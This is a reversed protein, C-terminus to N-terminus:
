DRVIFENVDLPVAGLRLWLTPYPGHKTEEFLPGSRFLVRQNKADPFMTKIVKLSEVCQADVMDYKVYHRKPEHFSIANRNDLTSCVCDFVCYGDQVDGNTARWEVIAALEHGVCDRADAFLESIAAKLTLEANVSVMEDPM